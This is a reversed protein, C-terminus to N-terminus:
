SKRGERISVSNLVERFVPFAKERRSKLTWTIVQHFYGESETFTFLYRVSLGEIDGWAEYQLARRGDLTTQEAEGVQGNELAGRTKELAFDAYDKLSGDFSSKPDNIVILYEERRPNGVELQAYDNLNKLMQWHNPLKMQMVEDDTVVVRDKPVEEGSTWQESNQIGKYFGFAFVGMFGIILLVLLAGSPVVMFLWGKKKTKILLVLSVIFAVPVMLFLAIAFVAGFVQGIQYALSQTEALLM